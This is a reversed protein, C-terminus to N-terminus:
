ATAGILEKYQLRRGVVRRMTAIFRTQDNGERENFRTVQEDLYRMLHQPDVAVYTGKLTRKLLSWFNEMGNTHVNGNAYAIAHDIVEHVYEDNLRRYSALADSYVTSGAQVNERVHSDITPTKTDPLINLKVRSLAKETKRQLLGGVITKGIWGTGMRRARVKKHMFKARGGIFSEDSEVEGSIKEFTQTKMAARIRHLMHWTAKQTVGLARHLEHSSIGNKANVICWVAVLWKDLGLPSDEFITNTKTSFQMRCDKAKCQFKRRTKIEGINEGNCKPCTIKGSPWKIGVMFQHCHDADSFYRVAELLTKPFPEQTNM